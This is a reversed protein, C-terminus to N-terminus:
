ELATDHVFLQINDPWALPHDGFAFKMSASKFNQVGATVVQPGEDSPFSEQPRVVVIHGAQQIQTGDPQQTPPQFYGAVVLKGANAATIAHDLVGNDGSMGLATWGAEEATPGSENGDGSLWSVQSNALRLQRHNPPRLIYIDLYLAAAAVYASCHTHHAPDGEAPGNRQGTQWIVHFNAIWRTEVHTGDLFVRLREGGESIVASM